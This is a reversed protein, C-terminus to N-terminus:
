QVAATLRQRAQAIRQELYATYFDPAGYGILREALEGAPGLFLVTPAMRVKLARACATPSELQWWLRNADASTENSPTTSAGTSAAPATAAKPEDPRAPTFPRQDNLTLEIFTVGLQTQRAALGDLHERRLADCWACGPLSFMLVIPFRSQWAARAIRDLSQGTAASAGHAFAARPLILPMGGAWLTLAALLRRRQADTASDCSGALGPNGHHRPDSLATGNLPSESMPLHNPQLGGCTDGATDSPDSNKDVGWQAAERAQRPIPPQM